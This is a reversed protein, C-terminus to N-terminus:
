LLELMVDEKLMFSIEVNTDYVCAKVDDEWVQLTKWSRQEDTSSITDIIFKEYVTGDDNFVTRVVSCENESWYRIFYTENSM